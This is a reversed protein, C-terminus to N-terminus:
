RNSGTSVCLTAPQASCILEMPEPERATLVLASCRASIVWDRRQYCHTSSPMRLSMGTLIGEIGIGEVEPVYLWRVPTRAFRHADFGMGVAPNASSSELLGDTRTDKLFARIFGQVACALTM